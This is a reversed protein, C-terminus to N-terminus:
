VTPWAKWRSELRDSDSINPEMNTDFFYWGNNINLEVAYHHPFGVSRYSINKRKMVEMLVLSQQSCGGYSYKLIEDPKVLSALGCGVCHEGMAAIWNQSLKYQSFGHYFRNRLITAVTIAYQLSGQQINKAKAASDSVHILEDVSNIYSLSPDFKEKHDYQPTKELNINFFNPILFLVSLAILLPKM